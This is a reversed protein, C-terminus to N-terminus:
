APPLLVYQKLRDVEPQGVYKGIEKDFQSWTKWPRYEMLEAAMRSGVRPILLFEERKGTNLNIKVFAKGYLERAQEATLKQDLLFKNLEIITPFPRKELLGKAIAPTMHPLAQLESESAANPDVLGTQAGAPSTALVMLGFFAIVRAVAGIATTTM